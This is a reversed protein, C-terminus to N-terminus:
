FSDSIDGKDLDICMVWYGKGTKISRGHKAFGKARFYSEWQSIYIGPLGIYLKKIQDRKYEVGLLGDNVWHGRGKAFYPYSLPMKTDNINVTINDFLKLKNDVGFWSLNDMGEIGDTKRLNNLLEAIEPYEKTATKEEHVVIKDEIEERQYEGEAYDLDIQHFRHTFIPEVFQRSGEGTFFEGEEEKTKEEKKEMCQGQKVEEEAEKPAEEAEKLVEEVVIRELIEVIEEPAEEM